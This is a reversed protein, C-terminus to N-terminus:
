PAGALGPGSPRIRQPGPEWQVDRLLQSPAMGFMEHVVRTLHSSDYFGAGCAAQTLTAGSRVLEIARRIRVWRVYAPFPLGLEEAFLHGLRSPSLHLATAVEELTVPGHLRSRVRDIARGVAPHPAAAARGGGPADPPCASQVAAATWDTVRDGPATPFRSRLARGVHSDSDYYAVTGQADEAHLSHTARSPIVAASVALRGGYRDALEVTGSRVVVVQVAAHAHAHTTGLRGRFLLRGAELVVSGDWRQEM